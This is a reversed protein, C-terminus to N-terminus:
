SAIAFASEDIRDVQGITISTCYTLGIFAEKSISGVGDEVVVSKIDNEYEQWPPNEDHELDYTKMEGTGSITLTGDKM